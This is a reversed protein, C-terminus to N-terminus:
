LCALSTLTHHLGTGAEASGVPLWFPGDPNDLVPDLHGAKGGGPDTVPHLLGVSPSPTVEPWTAGAALAAQRLAPKSVVSKPPSDPHSM